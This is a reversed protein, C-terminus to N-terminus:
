GIWTAQISFLYLLRLMTLANLSCFILNIMSLNNPRVPPESQLMGKAAGMSASQPLGEYATWSQTEFREREM